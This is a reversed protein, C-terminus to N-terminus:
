TMYLGLQLWNKEKSVGAM